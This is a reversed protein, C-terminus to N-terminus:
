LHTNPGSIRGTLFYNYHSGHPGEAGLVYITDGIIAVGPDNFVAGPPLVGDMRYWRDEQIDYAWTLDSWILPQPAHAGNRVDGGTIIAYRGRYLDGEWGSIPLPPPALQEWTDTAPDYRLTEQTGVIENAVNWTLGGFVYLSEGVAMSASWGRAPGPIPTKTHWGREPHDLDFVETTGRITRHSYGNEAFDYENGGAVVLFNGVHGIATHTRPTNLPSHPHWVPPDASLDLRACDGHVRYPPDSGKYQCAGGVLYISDDTAIARTYERRVPADPLREWEGVEPDFRWTWRSTRRSAADDTEDGGPIFGGIVYIKGEHAVMGVGSIGADPGQEVWPLETTQWEIAGLIPVSKVEDSSIESLPPDVSKGEKPVAKGTAAIATNNLCIFSVVLSLLAVGYRAAATTRYCKTGRM